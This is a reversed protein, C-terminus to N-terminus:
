AFAASTDTLGLFEVTEQVGNGGACVAVRRFTREGRSLPIARRSHQLALNDWVVLDGERWEHEYANADV